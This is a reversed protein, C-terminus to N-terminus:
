RTEILLEKRRKEDFREIAYRLTTRPIAPGHALLFKELRAMDKKGAERLLWGSAKQILDDDVSFLSRSIGYITDLHEERKALKIFSVVSARKVWRNPHGAWSKIKQELDPYKIILAGMIEPCFVDVLAWNNLRNAALWSKAKSFLSKPLEKKFRALILAGIAKAELEIEPFVIDCLRIADAVTWDKKIAAYLDAAIARIDPSSVGYSKVTEKFYKQVDGAKRPNAKARLRALGQRAIDEPTFAVATMGSEKM